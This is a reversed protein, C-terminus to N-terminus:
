VSATENLIAPNEEPSIVQGSLNKGQRYQAGPHTEPLRVNGKGFLRERLTSEKYKTRYLGRKQLEPVVLEVFDEATGPTLFQRLNFGDLDTQEVWHQINDVVQSPTGVAFFPSRDFRTIEHLADAVTSGPNFFRTRRSPDRGAAREREEVVSIPTDPSYAAWDIGGGGAHTLYGEARSLREYEEAKRQAEEETKGVIVVGHSYAKVDNGDRGNEEAQRRIDAVHERYNEFSSGGVFVAEAHKGAFARGRPSSGAQFLVPTRQLSPQSLHPGEVAFHEGRHHIYRVKDPDTYVYNERDQIVADDDWSGEWLKYLVDLYEDARDYRQGHAVEKELGFNRAANPLYSTVINWGFRGKTLHDLTSARRAFAFPPEYTTSFTAAFGLYKTAAAMAPILLLPDNNPIQVSERLATEPGARYGDYAGIVDALFVADFLGEELIKAQEIWFDIDNFRHRNNEPHVWLGHSIHGVCGMEFLNFGIHKQVEKKAM